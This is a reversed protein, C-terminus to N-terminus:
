KRERESRIKERETPTLGGFIGYFDDWHSLKLCFELCEQKVECRDCIAKAAAVTKAYLGSKAPPPFWLDPDVGDEHVANWCAAKSRM